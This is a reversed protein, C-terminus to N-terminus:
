SEYPTILLIKFIELRPRETILTELDVLKPVHPTFQMEQEIDKYIKEVYWDSLSYLSLNIEPDDKKVTKILEQTSAHVLPIAKIVKNKAFILEGNFAVQTSKLNLKNILIEM